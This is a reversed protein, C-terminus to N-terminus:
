IKTANATCSGTAAGNIIYTYSITLIAGNIAGTGNVTVNNGGVNVSQNPITLVDKDVTGTFSANAFDGFNNLLVGNKTSSESITMQYTYNAAPTCSENVNYTGLFKDIPKKCGTLSLTTFAVVAVLALKDTLNKM